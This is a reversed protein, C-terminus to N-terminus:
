HITNSRDDPLQYRIINFLLLRTQKSSVENQTNDRNNWILLFAVAAIVVISILIWLWASSSTKKARVHIEAM